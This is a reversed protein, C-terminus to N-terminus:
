RSSEFAELSVAFLEARETSDNVFVVTSEYGTLEGEEFNRGPSFVIFAGVDPRVTEATIDVTLTREVISTATGLEETGGEETIFYVTDGEKLQRNIDFGFTLRLQAM